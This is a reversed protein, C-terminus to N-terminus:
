AAGMAKRVTDYLGATWGFEDEMAYINASTEKLEALFEESPETVTVGEDIMMQLYEAESEQQLENNYLGAEKGTEELLTQQEPTLSNFFDASCM